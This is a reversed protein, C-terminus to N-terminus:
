DLIPFVNVATWPEVEVRVIVNVNEDVFDDGGQPDPAVGEPITPDVDVLIGNNNNVKSLDINLLKGAKNKTADLATAQGETGTYANINLFRRNASVKGGEKFIFHLTPANGNKGYDTVKDTFFNFAAAKQGKFDFGNTNYYSAASSLDTKGDPMFTGDAFKYRVGAYTKAYMLTNSTQDLVHFKDYFRNMVIGTNEATVDVVQFYKDWETEQPSKGTKQDYKGVAAVFAALADGPQKGTNKQLWDKQWQEAAQQGGQKWEIKSFKTGLVQFRNMNGKLIFEAVKVTRQDDLPDVGYPEQGAPSLPKTEAYIVDGILSKLEYDAVQAVPTKETAIHGQPNCIVLARQTKKDVNKFKYGGPNAQSSVATTNVLKSWNADNKVFEEAVTINGEHDILYVHVKELSAAAQDEVKDQLGGMAARTGVQITNLSVIVDVPQNGTELTPNDENNCAAFLMLSAAAFYKMVKM